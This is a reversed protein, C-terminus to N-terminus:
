GEGGRCVSSWDQASGVVTRWLWELERARTSFCIFVTDKKGQAKLRPPLIRNEKKRCLFM